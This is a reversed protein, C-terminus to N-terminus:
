HNGEFFRLRNQLHSLDTQLQKMKELLHCIVAIGEANLDLDKHLRIMREADELEEENIYEVNQKEIINILGSQQLDHFFRVEIEYVNCIEKAAILQQQM